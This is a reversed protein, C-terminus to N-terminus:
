RRLIGCRVYKLYDRVLDSAGRRCRKEENKRHRDKRAGVPITGDGLVGSDEQLKYSTFECKEHTM